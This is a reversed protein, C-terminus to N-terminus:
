KAARKVIRERRERAEGKEGLAAEVDVAADKSPSTTRFEIEKPSTAPVIRDVYVGPSHVHM